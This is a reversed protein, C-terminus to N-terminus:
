YFLIVMIDIKYFLDFDDLFFNFIVYFDVVIDVSKFYIVVSYVDLSLRNGVFVFSGLFLVVVWGKLVFCILCLCLFGVLGM